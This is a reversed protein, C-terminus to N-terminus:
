FVRLNPSLDTAEGSETLGTKKNKGQKAAKGELIDKSLYISKRGFGAVCLIGRRM